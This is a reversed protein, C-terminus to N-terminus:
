WIFFSIYFSINFFILFYLNNINKNCFIYLGLFIFILRSIYSGLILEDGFFGSIRTTMFQTNSDKLYYISQNLLNKGFIFQIYADLILVLLTIFIFKFFIKYFDKNENSLYVIAM